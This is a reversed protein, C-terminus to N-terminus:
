STATLNAVLMWANGNSTYVLEYQSNSSLTPPVATAYVVTGSPLSGTAAVQQGTQQSLTPDTQWTSATTNVTYKQAGSVPPQLGRHTYWYYGGVGALIWIWIPM